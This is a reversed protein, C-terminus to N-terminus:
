KNEGSIGIKSGWGSEAVMAIQGGCHRFGSHIEQRQLSTQHRYLCKGNGARAMRDHDDLRWGIIIMSAGGREM